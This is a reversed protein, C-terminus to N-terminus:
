NRINQVL